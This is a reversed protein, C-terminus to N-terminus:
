VNKCPKYKEKNNDPLLYPYNQTKNNLWLLLLKRERLM